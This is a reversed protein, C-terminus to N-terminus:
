GVVTLSWITVSNFTDSYERLYVNSTRADSCIYIYIYVCVYHRAAAPCDFNSSYFHTRALFLTSCKVDGVNDIFVGRNVASRRVISRRM